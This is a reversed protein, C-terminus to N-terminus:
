IKSIVRINAEIHEKPTNIHYKGKQNGCGCPKLIHSWDKAFQKLQWPLHSSQETAQTRVFVLGLEYITIRQTQSLDDSSGGFKASTLRSM